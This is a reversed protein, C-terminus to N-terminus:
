VDFGNPYVESLQKKLPYLLDGYRQWRRMASTYLPQRVQWTSLTASRNDVKQFELMQESWSIGVFDALKQTTAQPDTVVDEYAVQLMPNPLVQAWHDMLM